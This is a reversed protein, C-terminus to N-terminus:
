GRDGRRYHVRMYRVFGLDPYRKCLLREAHSHDRANGLREILRLYGDILWQWALMPEEHM